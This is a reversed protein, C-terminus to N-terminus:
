YKESTRSDDWSADWSISEAYLKIYKKEELKLSNFKVLVTM